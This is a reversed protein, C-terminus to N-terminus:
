FRKKVKICVTLSDIDKFVDGRLQVRLQGFVRHMYDTMQKETPKRMPRGITLPRMEIMHGPFTNPLREKEEKNIEDRIATRLTVVEKEEQAVESKTANTENVAIEVPKKVVRRKRRARKAKPM